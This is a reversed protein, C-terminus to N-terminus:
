ERKAFSPVSRLYAYVKHLKRELDEAKARHTVLDNLTLHEGENKESRIAEFVYLGGTVSDPQIELALGGHAILNRHEALEMVERLLDAFQEWLGSKPKEALIRLLSNARVRLPGQLQPAAPDDLAGSLAKYTLSEISAFAVLFLGIQMAWRERMGDVQWEPDAVGVRTIPPDTDNKM